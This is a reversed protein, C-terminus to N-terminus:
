AIGNANLHTKAYVTISLKGNTDVHGVGNFQVPQMEQSIRQAGNLQKILPLARGRVEDADNHGDFLESRLSWTAADGHGIREIYPDFPPKLQHQWVALSSKPIDLRAVWGPAPTNKM